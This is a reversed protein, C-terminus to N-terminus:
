LSVYSIGLPYERNIVAFVEKLHESNSEFDLTGYDLVVIRQDSMKKLHDLYTGQVSELYTERINLEYPRGRKRIHQKLRGPPLYLYVLLEPKPLQAYMIDFLRRFLEFEDPNLNTRAYVLSKELYYDSVTFDSFLESQPVLASLQRYRGALFFMEVSFAYRAPDEYFRGLFPNDEFEELICRGGYERALLRSLTTKGAGICGEISLYNYRM